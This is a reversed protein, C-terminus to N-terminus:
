NKRKKKNMSKSGVRSMACRFGIFDTSQDEPYFRRQAPDLWYERDKWSGGKYVRVNNNILSTRTSLSDIKIITNGLSDSEVTHSPANYMEATFDTDDNFRGDYKRTSQRDGDRFNRNDAISFNTRLQNKKEDIEVREIEGPLNKVIVKGNTLTDYEIDDIGLVKVSGDEALAIKTYINGRYYAFDNFEDDVIPRYIDAVWEAVNGAMDYVGFDNPDYSM